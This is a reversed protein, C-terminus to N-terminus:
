LREKEGHQLHDLKGTLYGNPTVEGRSCLDIYVIIKGVPVSILSHKQDIKKWDIKDLRRAYPTNEWKDIEQSPLKQKM